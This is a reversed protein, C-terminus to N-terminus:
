SNRDIRASSDLRGGQSRIRKSEPSSHSRKSLHVPTGILEATGKHLVVKIGFGAFAKELCEVLIGPITEDLTGLVTSKSGGFRIGVVTGLKSSAGPIYESDLAYPKRGDGNGQCKMRELSIQGERWVTMRSINIGAAKFLEVVQRASMGMAWVVGAARRIRPTPDAQDVVPPYYRFTRM